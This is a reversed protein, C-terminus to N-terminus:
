PYQDFQRLKQHGQFINFANKKAWRRNGDPIIAIHNPIRNMELTTLQDLTFDPTSCTIAPSCTM